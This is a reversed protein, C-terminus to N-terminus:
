PFRLSSLMAFAVNPNRGLGLLVEGVKGDHHVAVQLFNTGELYNPVSLELRLGHERRLQLTGPGVPPNWTGRPNFGHPSELWAGDSPSAYANLETTATILTCSFIGRDTDLGVDVVPHPFYSSLCTGPTWWEKPRLPRRPWSPPAALSLRGLHVRHWGSPVTIPLSAHLVDDLASRTYSEAVRAGATSLGYLRVGLQPVSIVVSSTSFKFDRQTAAGTGPREPVIWV